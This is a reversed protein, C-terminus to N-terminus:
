VLADFDIGDPVTGSEPPLVIRYDSFKRSVAGNAAEVRILDFLKHSPANGLATAHRFRYLRRVGMEGRAASRDHEFLNQLAEVLLDLDFQSFGTDAALYPSVFIHARYLGYPVTHKRGMQGSVAHEDYEQGDAREVDGQNTLAVRTITHEHSFIPDISRAFGIQVPGRVQGCNWLKGGLKRARGKGGPSELDDDGAKGTTMVAGFTRVDYYNACMWARADKNPSGQAEIGLANYARKQERALIGREKVYIDFPPAFGRTLAVFNRIKRKLCVDTVLGIGTEPDIRPANGADPDGNPNGHTVDFLFVFEIRNQIANFRAM